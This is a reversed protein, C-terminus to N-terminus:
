ISKTLTLAKKNRILRIYLVTSAFLIGMVTSMAGTISANLLYALYYGSIAIVIGILATCWLMKELSQTWLYAISPPGIIFGVVLIAGVTEFSNVTTFSVLGMLLYQWLATPIGISRAFNPDFSTIKLNKYGLIIFLLVFLLNLSQLYVAKPGINITGGINITDIPVYAIEGYLVCEQDIDVQNAFASILIIGIAFMFTFVVGIAADSQLKIKRHIFEILFTACLGTLSAGILMIGTDRSSTWLYAIVIGPLVAHSIADGIMSMQRLVLFNGLLGCNIAVLSGTLIIWFDLM